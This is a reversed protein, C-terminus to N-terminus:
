SAVATPQASQAAGSQAVWSRFYPQTATDPIQAGFVSSSHKRAQDWPSGPLHSLRSLEIATQSGYTEFVANLFGMVQNDPVPVPTQEFTDFDLQTAPQNIPGSGCYKFQHYVEPYVPGYQWAEPTDEILPQGTHALWFGHAFYLLKQLKMNSINQGRNQAVLLLGNAISKASYAM